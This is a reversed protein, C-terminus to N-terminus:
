WMYVYGGFIYIYETPIIIQPLFLFRWFLHYINKAPINMQPLFLFRWFLHGRSVSEFETVCYAICACMNTDSIDFVFQNVAQEISAWSFLTTLHVSGGAMVMATSKPRLAFFCVFPM